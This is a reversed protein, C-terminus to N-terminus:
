RVWELKKTTKKGGTELHLYYTGAALELSPLNLCTEGQVFQQPSFAHALRGQSDFLSILVKGTQVSTLCLQLQGTTVPNQLV